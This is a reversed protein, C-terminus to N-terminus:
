TSVHTIENNYFFTWGTETGINRIKGAADSGAFAAFFHELEDPLSDFKVQLPKFLFPLQNWFRVGAAGEDLNMGLWLNKGVDM